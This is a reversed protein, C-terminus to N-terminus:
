WQKAYTHTGFRTPVDKNRYFYHPPLVVARTNMAISSLAEGFLRPGTFLHIDPTNVKATLCLECAKQFLPHHPVSAFFGISIYAWTVPLDHCLVVPALSLIPELSRNPIVDADMYVGGYKELICYRMIDAKQAGKTSMQIRELLSNPFEQPCIDENTWVRVNWSPMLTKWTEVHKHFYAPPEQTGVWILHLLRPIYEKCEYTAPLIHLNNSLTTNM